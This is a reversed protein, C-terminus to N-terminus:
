LTMRKSSWEVSCAGLASGFYVENYHVFLAHLDPHPDLLDAEEM